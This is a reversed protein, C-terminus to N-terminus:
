NFKVEILELEDENNESTRAVVRCFGGKDTRGEISYKTYGSLTFKEEVTAKPIIVDVGKRKLSYLVVERGSVPTDAIVYTTRNNSTFM